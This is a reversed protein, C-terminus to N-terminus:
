EELTMRQLMRYLQRVLVAFISAGACILVFPLLIETMLSREWVLPHNDLSMLGGGWIAICFAVILLAVNRGVLQYNVKQTHKAGFCGCELNTYGRMLSLAIVATFLILMIGTFVAIARTQWGVLLLSGIVAETGILIFAIPQVSASPILNFAALTTAFRRPQGAKGIFSSLFIVGLLLRFFTLTLPQIDMLSM